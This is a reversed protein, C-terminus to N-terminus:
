HKALDGLAGSLLLVALIIRYIAFPLFGHRQVWRMFWAVVGLAVIFSVVFGIALVIWNQTTMVLPAIKETAEIAAHSHGPRLTDLLEKGTAAFM